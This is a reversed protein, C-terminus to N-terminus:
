YKGNKDYHTYGTKEKQNYGVLHKFKDVWKAFMSQKGQPATPPAQQGQPTPQAPQSPVQGTVPATTPAVPTTQQTDGTTPPPTGFEAAVFISTMDKDAPNYKPKAEVFKEHGLDVMSKIGDVRFMRWGPMKTLPDNPKGNPTDSVGARQWARVVPNGSHNVGYVYPEINRYGKHETTDGEYWITVVRKQKIADIIKNRGVTETLLENYISSLKM